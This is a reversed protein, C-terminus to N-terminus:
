TLNFVIPIRMRSRVTMTGAKGPNWKPMKKIVRMAEEDLLPHVGREIQVLSITGNREVVFSVYVKGSINNRICYEPYKIHKSIYKQLGEVGKKFTPEVDPFEAVVDSEQCFV